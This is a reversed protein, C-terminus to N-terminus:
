KTPLAGFLSARLRLDRSIFTKLPSPKRTAIQVVESILDFASHCSWGVLYCGLVGRNGFKLGWGGGWWVVFFLGGEFIGLGLM